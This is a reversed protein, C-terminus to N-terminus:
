HRDPAAPAVGIRGRYRRWVEMLVNFGDREPMDGLPQLYHRRCRATQGLHHLAFRAHGREYAEILAEVPLGQKRRMLIILKHM